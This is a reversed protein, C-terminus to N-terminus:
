SEWAGCVLCARARPPPQLGSRVEIVDIAKAKAEPGMRAIVRAERTIQCHPCPCSASTGMTGETTCAGMAEATTVLAYKRALSHLARPTRVALARAGRVGSRAGPAATSPRFVRFRLHSGNRAVLDAIGEHARILGVQEAAWTATGLADGTMMSVTLGARRLANVARRAEPHRPCRFVAVGCDHLGKAVDAAGLAGAEVMGVERPSLQRAGLALLRGGARSITELGRDADAPPQTSLLPRVAEPAGKVVVWVQGPAPDGGPQGAVHRPGPGARPGAGTGLLAHAPARALRVIAAMRRTDPSFPERSVIHLVLGDSPMTILDGSEGASCNLAHIAAREIPDGLLAPAAKDSAAAPSSAQVVASCGALVLRSLRPIAVTAAGQAGEGLMASGGAHVGVFVPEDLTLTGTKDFVVHRVRAAGPLATPDVCIVGRQRLSRLASNVALSTQGPLDGPMSTLLILLCHRVLEWRSTSPAHAAVYASALASVITCIAILLLPERSTERISETSRAVAALAAGHSSRRGTRMVMCAVGGDPPTQARASAEVHATLLRTGGRLSASAHTGGPGEDLLAEGAGVALKGLGIRPQPVSEGTLSAEDVLVSGSLLVSDCPVTHGECLSILDGPCLSSAAVRGWEGERRALLPPTPAQMRRLALANRHRAYVASAEYFITSMANVVAHKVEREFCWLGATALHVMTMPQLLHRGLLELLPALPASVDNPGHLAILREHEKTTLGRWATCRALPLKNPIAPRRFRLGGASALRRTRSRRTSAMFTQHQWRFALTGKRHSLEVLTPEGFRAEARVVAHSALQPRREERFRLSRALAPCWVMLLMSFAHLVLGTVAALVAHVSGARMAEHRAGLTYAHVGVFPLHQLALVHPRRRLLTVSLIPRECRTCIAGDRLDPRRAGVEEAQAAGCLLVLGAVALDVLRM